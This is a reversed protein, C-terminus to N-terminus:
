RAALYDLRAPLLLEAEMKLAKECGARLRTQVAPDDIPLNTKIEITSKTIRLRITQHSSDRSLVIQHHQGILAGDNISASSHKALQDLIWKQRAKAFAIGSAYPAWAPMGVRVKGASTISLRLNRAGRRKSLTVEGIGAVEVTRPAM